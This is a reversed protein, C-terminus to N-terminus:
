FIFESNTNLKFLCGREARAKLLLVNGETHAKSRYSAMHQNNSRPASQHCRQVSVYSIKPRRTLPLILPRDPFYGPMNNARICGTGRGSTFLFMLTYYDFHIYDIWHYCIINFNKLSYAEFLESSIDRATVLTSSFFLVTTALDM